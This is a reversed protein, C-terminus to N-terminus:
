PHYTGPEWARTIVGISNWANIALLLGILAAIESETHHRALREFATESAMDRRGVAEVFGLAAEEKATFFPTEAWCTLVAIREESEGAARADKTHMDVCYACGNLQSARTRLLHALGVPFAVSQLQRAAANELHAVAKGLAPAVTDLDLRARCTSTM